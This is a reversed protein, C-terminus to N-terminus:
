GQGGSAPTLRAYQSNPGGSLVVTLPEKPATPPSGIAPSFFKGYYAALETVDLLHGDSTKLVQQVDRRRWKPVCASNLPDIVPPDDADLLEDALVPFSVWIVAARVLLDTQHDSAVGLGLSGAVARLM